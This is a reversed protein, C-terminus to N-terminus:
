NQRTITKLRLMTRRLGANTPFTAACMDQNNFDDVNDDDDAAAAAATDADGFFAHDHCVETTQIELNIDTIAELSFCGVPYWFM